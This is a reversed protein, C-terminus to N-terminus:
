AIAAHDVKSLAHDPDQADRRRRDADAQVARRFATSAMAQSVRLQMGYLEGALVQATAALDILRESLATLAEHDTLPQQPARM